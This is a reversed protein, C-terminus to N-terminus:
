CMGESYSLDKVASAFQKRTEEGIVEAVFALRRMARFAAPPSVNARRGRAVAHGYRDIMIKDASDLEQDRKTRWATQVQVRVEDAKAQLDPDDSNEARKLLAETKADFM